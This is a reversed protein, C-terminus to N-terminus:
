SPRLKPISDVLTKNIAIFVPIDVYAMVDKGSIKKITFRLVPM